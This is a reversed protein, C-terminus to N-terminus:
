VAGIAEMVYKVLIYASFVIILGLSAWILTTRGTEVRQDNGVSTLWTFGGYVFMILALAGVIVLIARVVRGIIVRIDVTSLPNTYSDFLTGLNRGTTSSGANGGSTSSSPRDICDKGDQDPIRDAYFDEFNFVTFLNKKSAVLAKCAAEDLQLEAYYLVPHTGVGSSQMELYYCCGQACCCKTTTGSPKAGSCFSDKVQLWYSGKDTCANNTAWTCQAALVPEITVITAGIILALILLKYYRM